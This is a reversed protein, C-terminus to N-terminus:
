HLRGGSTGFGIKGTIETMEPAAVALRCARAIRYPAVLRALRLANFDYLERPSGLGDRGLARKNVEAVMKAYIMFSCISLM